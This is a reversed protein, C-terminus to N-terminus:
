HKFWDQVSFSCHCQKGSIKERGPWYVLWCLTNNITNTLSSFILKVISMSVLFHYAMDFGYIDPISQNNSFVLKGANNCPKIKSWSNLPQPVPIVTGPNHLDHSWKPMVAKKIFSLAPVKETRRVTKISIM